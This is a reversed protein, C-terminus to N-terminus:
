ATKRCLVIIEGSKALIILYFLLLPIQFITLFYHKTKAIKMCWNREKSKDLLDKVEDNEEKQM